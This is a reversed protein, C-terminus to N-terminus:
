GPLPNWKLRGGEETITGFVQNCFHNAGVLAGSRVLRPYLAERSAHAQEPDVDIVVGWEREELQVPGNLLDAILYLQQDGGEVLLSVHGPTHGPTPLVTVGSIVEEGAALWQIRGDLPQQVHEPHPGAPNDGGYWFDWETRSVLHRANPFTLRREGDVEVTTWGCHDLHLHTFLVDTVRERDVGAEELSQLYRGGYFVGMGPFEFRNPGIGTDVILRHDPTEIYFGGITTMFNGEDDLFHGYKQWAAEDSAPYLATPISEGGGDPLYTVSIDGLAVRSLNALKVM